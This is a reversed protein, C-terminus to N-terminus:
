DLDPLPSPGNDVFTFFTDLTADGIEQAILGTEGFYQFYADGNAISYAPEGDAGDEREAITFLQGSRSTDCAAAVITLPDSGNNRIGMCSPEGGADVSATKILWKGNHPALVFLGHEPVDAYNLRGKGDVGVISESEGVPKIVVQREGNLIPGYDVDAVQTTRLPGSASSASAPGAAAACASQSLALGATLVSFLVASRRTNM